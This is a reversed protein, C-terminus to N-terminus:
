LTCGRVCKKKTRRDLVQELRLTGVRPTLPTATTSLHWLVDRRDTAAALLSVSRVTKTIGVYKGLISDTNLNSVHVRTDIM